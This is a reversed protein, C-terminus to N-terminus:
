EEPQGAATREQWARLMRLHEAYHDAANSSIWEYRRALMDDPVNEILRLMEQYSADFAGRVEALSRARNAAFVYANVADEGEIKGPIAAIPDPAGALVRIVRQEWWTLHALHDKVSWGEETVDPRTQEEESLPALLAELAAHEEQSRRLLETRTPQPTAPM